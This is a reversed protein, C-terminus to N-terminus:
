DALHPRALDLFTELGAAEAAGLRYRIRERLYVELFAAPLRLAAAAGAALASLQELGWDAASALAPLLPKWRARSDRRGAWVAFVMPLGTLRFYEGGLDLRPHEQAHWALAPDGIVLRADGRDKPGRPARPRPRVGHGQELIIRALVSSTRSDPDLVLDRIERPAKRLLLLVSWVEGLAAIGLGPVPELAPDRLLEVAPVLGLDLSGDRLGRAVAAPTGTV